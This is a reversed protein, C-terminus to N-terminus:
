TDGAGAAPPHGRTSCPRTRATSRSCARRAGGIRRSPASCREDAASTTSWSRRSRPCAPTSRAAPRRDPRGATGTIVVSLGFDIAASGTPAHAGSTSSRWAALRQAADSIGTGPNNFALFTTTGGFAAALSDQFFRDPEEDQRAAHPHARRDRRPAGAAWPCGAHRRRTGQGLRPGVDTIRGDRIAVDAAFSREVTM